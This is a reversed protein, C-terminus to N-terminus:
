CSLALHLRASGQILLEVKATVKYATAQHVFCWKEPKMAELSVSLKCVNAVQM